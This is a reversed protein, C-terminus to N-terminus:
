EGAKFEILKGMNVPASYLDFSGSADDYEGLEFLTYDEAHRCFQHNSDAVCDSIARVAQGKTDLFFPQLYAESKDDYVTFIKKKM